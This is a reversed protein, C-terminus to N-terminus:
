SWEVLNENQGLGGEGDGERLDLQQSIWKTGQVCKEYYLNPM